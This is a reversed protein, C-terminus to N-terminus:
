EQVVSYEMTDTDSVDDVSHCCGNDIQGDSGDNSVKNVGPGSGDSKNIPDAVGDFCASLWGKKRCRSEPLKVGCGSNGDRLGSVLANFQNTYFENIEYRRRNVDALADFDLIPSDLVGGAPPTVDSGLGGDRSKSGLDNVVNGNDGKPARFGSVLANFQNTYFENIEYRRRNVDALADFGLIPSDLVGCIPPTVDSGLGGNRSESGLHNVNNGNDDKPAYHNSVDVSHSTRNAKAKKRAYRANCRDRNKRKQEKTKKQRATALKEIAENDAYVTDFLEKDIAEEAAKAAEAKKRSCKLASRERDRQRKKDAKSQNKGDDRLSQRLQELDSDM